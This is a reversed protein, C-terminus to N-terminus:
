WLLLTLQNVPQHLALASPPKLFIFKPMCLDFMIKAGNLFHQAPLPIILIFYQIEEFMEKMFVACLIIYLILIKRNCVPLAIFTFTIVSIREIAFHFNKM